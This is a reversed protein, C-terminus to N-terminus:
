NVRNKNHFADLAIPLSQGDEVITCTFLPFNVSVCGQSLLLKLRQKDGKNVSTFFNILQM